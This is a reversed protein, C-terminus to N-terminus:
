RIREYVALMDEGLRLPVPMEASVTWRGHATALDPLTLAGVANRGQGVLIPARYWLLRDVLDQVLFAAAVQPGGEVLLRLVGQGALAALAAPLDAGDFITVDPRGSLRRGTPVTKWSRSMVLVRPARDELGALRVDLQPDDAEVTGSGVLIADHRARELHGHARAAAGTIWRSQGDALAVQGDLSTACKLTVMPRSAGLRLSFGRIVARAQAEMLGCAVALGAAELRALGAGNTRPDPDSCAVVVRAVGARVLEDACSPGRGSAHNCPELTVYATAGQARPGAQTLAVAEAHPRGGPQTWGRGVVCGAGVIICGVSPNPSTRGQGREALALAAAM